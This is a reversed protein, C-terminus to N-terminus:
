LAVRAWVWKGRPGTPVVGCQAALEEVILLGRGGMGDDHYPEPAAVELPHEAATSGPPRRRVPRRDCADWVELLVGRAERTFRVRIEGDGAHRVANTVLESAILEVDEAIAAMGWSALRLSLQMRVQAPATWAALFATDLGHDAVARASM